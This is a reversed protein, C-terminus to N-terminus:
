AAAGSFIQEWQGAAANITQTRAWLRGNAALRRRQEPHRILQDLTEFWADDAALLGGQQEGLGAYPTLPSAVWPVGSAAYEKLKIDSRAHNFPIDALPAIAIDFGAMHEELQRVPVYRHHRYRSPLDLDVGLCEVHVEPHEQQLRELVAAIGLRSADALHEMGAIWGIVIGDHRRRPPRAKAPALLNPVVQVHEVGAERYRTALHDSPVTVAGASKALRTTERFLRQGHLGGTEAYRPSEEPIAALDDDNDWTVRVGHRMLSRLIGVTEPDARRYVHVVDCERLQSANPEGDQTEPWVIRHGRPLMAELPIIVRYLSGSSSPDWVAGIIM